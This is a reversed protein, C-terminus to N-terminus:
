INANNVFLKKDNFIYSFLSFQFGNLFFMNKFM